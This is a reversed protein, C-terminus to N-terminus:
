IEMIATDVDMSELSLSECQTGDTLMISISTSADENPPCDPMTPSTRQADDVSHHCALTIPVVDKQRDDNWCHSAVVQHELM